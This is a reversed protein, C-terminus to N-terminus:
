PLDLEQSLATHEDAAARARDIAEVWQVAVAAVQVLEARLRSPDHEAFAEAVEELLITRFTLFGEAALRDTEIKAQEAVWAAPGTFSWVIDPGTGDPLRSQDGHKAYQRVREASIEALIQQTAWTRTPDIAAVIGALQQADVASTDTDPHTM